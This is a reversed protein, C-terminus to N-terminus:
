SRRRCADPIHAGPLHHRPSQRNTRDRGHTANRCRPFSGCLDPVRSDGCEAATARLPCPASGRITPAAREGRFVTRDLRLAASHIPPCKVSKGDGDLNARRGLGLDLDSAARWYALLMAAIPLGCAILVSPPLSLFDSRATSATANGRAAVSNPWMRTM